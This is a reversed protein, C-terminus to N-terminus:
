SPSLEGPRIRLHLQQGTMSVTEECIMQSTCAPSALGLSASEDLVQSTLADTFQCSAKPPNNPHIRRDSVCQAPTIRPWFPSSTHEVPM